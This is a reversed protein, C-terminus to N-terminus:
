FIGEKLIDHLHIVGAYGESNVVPLQTINHQRMLELAEALLAQPAIHKPDPTMIDKAKVHTPVPNKMLMRRLDGDTIIGAVQNGQVVITAGLRKSSIEVIVTNLNDDPKVTPKENRTYIDAVRLYLKKGLAGGPHIRAFDTASFGRCELLSMALADGMVLQATTSATPALNNPCAERPVSVNLVIDAQQALYSSTNGVIAIMKNGMARLLPILVRLEPTEGSKSLLMIIDEERVLGLDGHLADAAHLFVAETGTSNFTAVIKHAIAASKGIGSIIVKGKSQLLLYVAESFSQDLQDQILSLAQMEMNIVRRGIALIADTSHELRYSSHDEPM